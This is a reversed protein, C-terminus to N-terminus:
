YTCYNFSVGFVADSTWHNCESVRSVLVVIPYIYILVILFVKMKKSTRWVHVVGLFLCTAISTSVATHGCPFSLDLKSFKWHNVTTMGPGTWMYPNGYANPRYRHCLVKLAGSTVGSLVVGSICGFLVKKIVWNKRPLFTLALVYTGILVPLVHIVEMERGLIIMKKILTPPKYNSFVKHWQKLWAHQLPYPLADRNHAPILLPWCSNRHGLYRIISTLDGDFIYSLTVILITLIISTKWKSISLYADRSMKKPSFKSMDRKRLCYNQCALEAIRWVCISLAPLIFIVIFYVTFLILSLPSGNSDESKPHFIHLGGKTVAFATLLALPRREDKVVAIINDQVSHLLCRVKNLATFQLLHGMERDFMSYTLIFPFLMFSCVYGGTTISWAVTFVIFALLTWCVLSLPRKSKPFSTQDERTSTESGVFLEVPAGSTGWSTQLHTVVSKPAEGKLEAEINIVTAAAQGNGVAAYSVDKQGGSAPTAM